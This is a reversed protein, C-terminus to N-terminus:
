HKIELAQEEGGAKKLNRIIACVERYDRRNSARAATQEIYQVFLAYVEEKFEPILYKYFNEM